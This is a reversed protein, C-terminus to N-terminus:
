VYLWGALWGALLLIKLGKLQIALFEM